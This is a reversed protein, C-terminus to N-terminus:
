FLTSVSVLPVGGSTVDLMPGASPTTGPGYELSIRIAQLNGATTNLTLAELLQGGTFASFPQNSFTVAGFNADVQEVDDVWVRVQGTVGDGRHM